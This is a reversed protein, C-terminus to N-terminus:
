RRIPRSGAPGTPTASCSSRSPNAATDDDPEIVRGRAATVSLTQFYTGSVLESAVHEIRSDANLSLTIGFRCFMGSFAENHERLDEYM